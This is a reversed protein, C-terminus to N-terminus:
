STGDDSKVRATGGADGEGYEHDILGHFRPAPDSERSPDALMDEVIAKALGRRVQPYPSLIMTRLRADQAAYWDLLRELFGVQTIGTEARVQSLIKEAGSTVSLTVSRRGKAPMATRHGSKGPKTRAPKVEGAYRWKERCFVRKGNLIYFFVNTTSRANTAV